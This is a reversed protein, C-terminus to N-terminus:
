ANSQPLRRRHQLPPTAVSLSVGHLSALRTALILRRDRSARQRALAESRDGGPPERALVKRALIGGRLRDADNEAAELEDAEHPQRGPAEIYQYETTIRHSKITATTPRDDTAIAPGQPVLSYM